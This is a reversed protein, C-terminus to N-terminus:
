QDPNDTDVAVKWSGDSQKKWIVLYKGKYDTPKGKKDTTVFNYAGTEYALEGSRAVELASTQWSLGPGPQALLPAWDKRINENGRIAPAKEPLVLADDAYFSVAKDLDKAAASQSWAASAARIAAEDAARAQLIEQQHEAQGGKEGTHSCSTTLIMAVLAALMPLIHRTRPL